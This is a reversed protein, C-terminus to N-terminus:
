KVRDVDLKWIECHDDSYAIESAAQLRQGYGRPFPTRKRWLIYAPRFTKLAAFYDMEPVPLGFTGRHLYTLLVLDNDSLVNGYLRNSWACRRRAVLLFFDDRFLPQTKTPSLLTLMLQGNRNYRPNQSWDYGDDVIFLADEPTKERIWDYAPIFPLDIRTGAYQSCKYTSFDLNLNRWAVGASMLVAAAAFISTWRRAAAAGATGRWQLVTTKMCLLGAAALMILYFAGLRDIALLEWSFSFLGSVFTYAVIAVAASLVFVHQRKATWLTSVALAAAAAIYVPWFENVRYDVIGFYRLTMQRYAPSSSNCSMIMLLPILALLLTACTTAGIRWTMRRSILLWIMGSGIALGWPIAVYPRLYILIASSLALMMGRRKDPLDIFRLYAAAVLASLLYEINTPVRQLWGQFPPYTTVCDYAFYQLAMVAAGAAACLMLSWPRRRSLCASALVGLSAGFAIPFLIRWAWFLTIVHIGTVTLFSRLADELFFPSIVNPDCIGNIPNNPTTGAILPQMRQAYCYEDGVYGFMYYSANKGFALRICPLWVAFLVAAFALAILVRSRSPDPTLPRPDPNM